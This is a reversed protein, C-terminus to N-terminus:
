SALRLHKGLNEAKYLIADPKCYPLSYYEYPLQTRSSTLKVAKIDVPENDHFDQPAVGPVYFPCGVHFTSVLVLAWWTVRAVAAM